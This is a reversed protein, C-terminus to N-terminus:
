SYNVQILHFTKSKQLLLTGIKMLVLCERLQRFELKHSLDKTIRELFVLLKFYHFFGKLYGKVLHIWIFNNVSTAPKAWLMKWMKMWFKIANSHSKTAFFCPMLVYIMNTMDPLIAWCENCVTLCLSICRLLIDHALIQSYASLVFTAFAFLVGHFLVIWSSTWAFTCSCIICLISHSCCFGFPLLLQQWLPLVALDQQLKNFKFIQQM